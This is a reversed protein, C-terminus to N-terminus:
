YELQDIVENEQRYPESPISEDGFSKQVSLCYITHM